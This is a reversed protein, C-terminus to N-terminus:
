DTFLAATWVWKLAAVAIGRFLQTIKGM